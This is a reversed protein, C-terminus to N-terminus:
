CIKIPKNNILSKESERQSNLEKDFYEGNLVFTIGMFAIILTPFQGWFLNGYASLLMGFIGCLFAMLTGKLEPNRIKYMLIWVGKSIALLLVGLYIILGVIGTEVWIKVYWSDSPISTTFRKSVKVGLGDGSLGLGEGFPKDILYAALKKQNEKRVNFSADKSPTFATRMRRIMTNGQGITTFAFFIYILLLSISGILISSKQKSILTYLALGGLPVIIAGRTGSLFMCYLAALSVFTYYTKLATNHTYLMTIGFIVSACGMNSGFNGADTFFSFYRTGSSILHTSNGKLFELEHADFGIFKQILAKLFALLTFVSFVFLLIKITKYQTCLLSTIVTILLGNIILGRALVWGMFLGTPNLLELLCYVTWILCGISLPHFARKWEINHYLASHIFILIFTIIFLIDMFLSIGEINLYRFLAMIFYNVTFIVYIMAVPKRLIFVCTLLIFPLSIIAVYLPFSNSLLSMLIGCLGILVMIHFLSIPRENTVQIDKYKM